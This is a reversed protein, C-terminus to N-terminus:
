QASAELGGAPSNVVVSAPSHQPLPTSNAGETKVGRSGQEKAALPLPASAAPDSLDSESIYGLRPASSLNIFESAVPLRHQALRIASKAIEERIGGGGLEFLVRGM